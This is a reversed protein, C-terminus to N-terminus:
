FGLIAKIVSTTEGGHYIVYLLLYVAVGTIATFFWIISTTPGIKRHIEYKKKYGTVLMTIGLVAGTTALTIHFILFITYYIKIDDPGGFATNGIFITRSAYIVFFIVACIAGILMAKQHAELKRKIILGWGIAVFIASLVIFATSITPLVPLSYNM